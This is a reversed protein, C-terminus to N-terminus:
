RPSVWVLQDDRLRIRKRSDARPRLPRSSGVPDALPAPEGPRAALSTAHISRDDSEPFIVAARPYSVKFAAVALVDAM